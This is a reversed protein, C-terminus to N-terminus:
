NSISDVLRYPTHKGMHILINDLTHIDKLNYNCILSKNYKYMWVKFTCPYWIIFMILKNTKPTSWSLIYLSGLIALYWISSFVLVSLCWLIFSFWISLCRYTFIFDLHIYIITQIENIGTKDIIKSLLRNKGSWELWESRM